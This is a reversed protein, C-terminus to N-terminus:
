NEQQKCFVSIAERKNSSFSKIVLCQHIRSTMAWRKMQLHAVTFLCTPTKANFWLYPSRSELRTILASSISAWENLVPTWIFSIEWQLHRNKVTIYKGLSMKNKWECLLFCQLHWGTLITWSWPLRMTDSPWFM